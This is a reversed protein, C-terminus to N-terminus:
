GRPSRKVISVEVLVDVSTSCTVSGRVVGDGHQPLAVLSGPPSQTMEHTAKIVHCFQVRLADGM